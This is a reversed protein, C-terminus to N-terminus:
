MSFKQLFAILDNKLREIDFKELGPKNHAADNGIATMSEVHKLTIKDYIKAKYLNNNYDAITPRKKEPLCNNGFCMRYLREELVARYIVGSALYYNQDFLYNAQEILDSFAEAFVLDEFSLLLNNDLAELISELSGQMSKATVISNNSNASFVNTWPESFEGMLSMLLSCSSQWKKFQQLDVFSPAGSLYNGNKEWKTELVARGESILKTVLNYIKDKSKM